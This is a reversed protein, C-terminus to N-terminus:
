VVTKLFLRTHLCVFQFFYLGNVDSVLLLSSNTEALVAEHLQQLSESALKATGVSKKKQECTALSM